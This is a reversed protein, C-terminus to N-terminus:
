AHGSESSLMNVDIGLKAIAKEWKHDLDNGFVLDEDAPVTLWVNKRIEDDLQGPSWGAYGLALICRRPGQGEVIAKLVDVTATLAMQRDVVMTADQMYDASHLVFGRGAEVPGGF